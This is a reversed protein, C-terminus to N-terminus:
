ILPVAALHLSPTVGRTAADTLDIAAPSYGAPPRGSPAFAGWKKAYSLRREAQGPWRGSMELRVSRRAPKIVAAISRTSKM